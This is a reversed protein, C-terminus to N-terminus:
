KLFKLILLEVLLFFLGFIIFWNWLLTPMVQAKIEKLVKSVEAVPISKKSTKPLNKSLISERRVEDALSATAFSNQLNTSPSVKQAQSVKKQSVESQRSPVQKLNQQEKPTKQDVPVSLGLETYFNEDFLYPSGFHYFFPEALPSAEFDTNDPGLSATFIYTGNRKFLFAQGDEFELLPDVDGVLPYHSKVVPYNFHNIKELFLKRLAPQNYTVNTLLHEKDIKRYFTPVQLSRLLNNYSSLDIETAPIIVVPVNAKLKIKHLLGSLKQPISDLANLIIMDSSLIRSADISDEPINSLRFDPRSYVQKLFASISDGIVVLDVPRNDRIRFNLKNDFDPGQDQIEIAGKEVATSPLELVLEAEQAKGLAFQGKSLLDQGDYVDVPVELLHEGIAKVEVHLEMKDTIQLSASNIFVNSLQEPKRKILHTRIGPIAQISDINQFDSIVIFDKRLNQDDSFMQEAKLAITQWSLQIPSYELERLGKRFESINIKSKEQDNTFFSIQDEPRVNKLLEHVGQKLLEGRPGKAQMSYSNDLYILTEQAVTKGSSPPLCPQAFALVVAALAALRIFLLFLIKRRSIHQGDGRGFYSQNSFKDIRFRRLRFFHVLVPLILLFLAYLLDPHKFYM